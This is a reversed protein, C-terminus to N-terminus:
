GVHEPADALYERIFPESMAPLCGETANDHYYPNELMEERIERLPRERINGYKIQILPCSVVDGYPQLGIKERAAPCKIQTLSSYLDSRNNRDLSLLWHFYLQAEDTLMLDLRGKWAGTLCCPTIQLLCGLERAMLMTYIIDDSRVKDNTMVTNLVVLLGERRCLQTNRIIRQFSGRRRNKDHREVFASDFGMEVSDLGARKLELIREEELLYGNTCLHVWGGREKIYATLPVVKAYELLPEGGNICFQFAGLAMAQDVADRYEALTLKDTKERQRDMQLRCSCQECSANCRYTMALELSRLSGDSRGRLARSAARVVGPWLSRDRLLIGASQVVRNAHLRAWMM